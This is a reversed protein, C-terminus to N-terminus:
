HSVGNRLFVKTVTLGLIKLDLLFTQERLYFADCAVKASISLEDRGNIQAWGTIGPKLADVGAETRLSILDEQNFLAPRPGVLSMEGKLVNLLQPLEDLSSKRLFGGISTLHRAPDLLLHTAVQPADTLMTRFKFMQFKSNGRGVRSSRFLIPGASTLRIALAIGLALPALVVLLLLAVLFDFLRKM